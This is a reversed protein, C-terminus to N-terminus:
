VMRKILRHKHVVLQEIYDKTKQFYSIIFVFFIQSLISKSLFLFKPNKKKRKMKVFYNKFYLYLVYNLKCLCINFFFLQLDKLFRNTMGSAFTSLTIEEPKCSSWPEYLRVVVEKVQSEVYENGKKLDIFDPVIPKNINM